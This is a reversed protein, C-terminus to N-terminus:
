TDNKILVSTPNGGWSLSSATKIQLDPCPLMDFLAVVYISFTCM